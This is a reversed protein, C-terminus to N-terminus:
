IKYKVKVKRKIINVAEILLAFVFACYIYEKQLKIHLGDLTLYVGIFLIFLIAVVKLQPHSRILKATHSSLFLMAIMSFTFAIGIIIMNHTLAIATLISDVSFVLDILIIQMIIFFLKSRVMINKKDKKNAPYIDSYLEAASKFILFMGGVMMLLDKFSINFSAISFIHKKS